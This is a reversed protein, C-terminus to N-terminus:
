RRSSVRWTVLRSREPVVGQRLDFDIGLSCTLRRGRFEAAFQLTRGSGLTVKTRIEQVEDV